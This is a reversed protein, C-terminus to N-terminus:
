AGAAAKAASAAGQLFGGVADLLGQSQSSKSVNGTPYIGLTQNLLAQMQLPYNWADLFAQKAADDIKQQQAQQADGAQGVASARTIADKLQQAGYSAARDAAQGQVGASGLAAQLAAQWGQSRLNAATSASTRLANENTLSNLVAQRDGGFAHAASAKQNDALLGMQRAREIDGLSSNIVDNQWPDFFTAIMDPTIGGLLGSNADMAKGLSAAGTANTGIDILSKQAQQQAGSFPAVTEGGYAQYPRDALAHARALNAQWAALEIPDVKNTSKSKSTLSM